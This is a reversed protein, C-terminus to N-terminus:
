MFRMILYCAHVSYRTNSQIATNGQKEANKALKESVDLM